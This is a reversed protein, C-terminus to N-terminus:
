VKMRRTLFLILKERACPFYKVQNLDTILGEEDINISCSVWCAALWKRIDQRGLSTCDAVLFNTVSQVFLGAESNFKCTITQEVKESKKWM